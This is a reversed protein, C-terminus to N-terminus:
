IFKDMFVLSCNKTNIFSDGTLPDSFDFGFTGEKDFLSFGTM